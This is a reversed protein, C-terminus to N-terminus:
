KAMETARTTEPMSLHAVEEPTLVGHVVIAGIENYEKIQAATLM